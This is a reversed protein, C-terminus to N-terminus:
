LNLYEKVCIIPSLIDETPIEKDML